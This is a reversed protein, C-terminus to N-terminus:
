KGASASWKNKNLNYSVTGSIDPIFLSQTYVMSPETEDGKCTKHNVLRLYYNGPKLNEIRTKFYARNDKFFGTMFPTTDNEWDSRKDYLLAEYKSTCSYVPRLAYPMDYIILELAPPSPEDMKIDAECSVMLLCTLLCLYICKMM